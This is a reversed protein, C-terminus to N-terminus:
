EHHHRRPRRHAGPGLRAVQQRVGTMLMREITGGATSVFFGSGSPNRTIARLTGTSPPFYGLSHGIGPAGPDLLTPAPAAVNPIEWLYFYEAVYLSWGTVSGSGATSKAIVVGAPHNLYGAAIRVLKGSARNFRYISFDDESCTYINGQVDECM